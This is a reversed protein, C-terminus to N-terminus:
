LSIAARVCTSPYPRRTGADTSRSTPGIIILSTPGLSSLSIGALLKSGSRLTGRGVGRCQGCPNAARQIYNPLRLGRQVGLHQAGHCLTASIHASTTDGGHERAGEVQAQRGGTMHINTCVCWVCVGCVCTTRTHTHTHTHTYVYMCICVYVYIYMYMYMCICIHVYIHIHTYIYMDQIYSYIYICVCRYVSVFCLLVQALHKIQRCFSYFEADSTLVSLQGESVLRASLLKSVLDHTNHGIEVHAQYRPAAAPSSDVANPPLALHLLWEVHRTVEPLIRTYVEQWIEHGAQFLAYQEELASTHIHRPIQGFSHQLFLLAGEKEKEKEKQKEPGRGQGFLQTHLDRKPREEETQLDRKAWAGPLLSIAEVSPPPLPPPTHSSPGQGQGAGQEAEPLSAPASPSSSCRSSSASGTSALSSPAAPLLVPFLAHVCTATNVCTETNVCKSAYTETNVCKSSQKVLRRTVRRQEMEAMIRGKSDKLHEDM